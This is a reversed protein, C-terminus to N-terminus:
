ASMGTKGLFVIRYRPFGVGRRIVGSGDSLDLTIASYRPFQTWIRTGLWTLLIGLFVKDIQNVPSARDKIVWLALWSEAANWKDKRFILMRLWRVRQPLQEEEPVNLKLQRKIM